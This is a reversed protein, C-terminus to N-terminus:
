RLLRRFSNLCKEYEEVVDVVSIRLRRSNLIFNCFPLMIDKINNYEADIQIIITNMYSYEEFRLGMTQGLIFLLINSLKFIDVLDYIKNKCDGVNNFNLDYKSKIYFANDVFTEKTKILKPYDDEYKSYHDWNNIISQLWRFFPQSTYEPLFDDQFYDWRMQGTFQKSFTALGFDIFKYTDNHIVINNTKIDTHLLDGKLLFKNVGIYLNKLSLLHIYIEQIPLKTKYKLLDYLTYKARVQISQYLKINDLTTVKNNCKKLEEKMELLKSPEILEPKQYSYIGFDGDRDIDIFNETMIWEKDADKEIQIKGIFNKNYTNSISIPPSIVCGYTGNSLFEFKEPLLHPSFKARPSVIPPTLPRPPPVTKFFVTIYKKNQDIIDYSEFIHRILDINTTQIIVDQTNVEIKVITTENIRSLNNVFEAFTFNLNNM